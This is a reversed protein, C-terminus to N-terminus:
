RNIGRSVREVEFALLHFAGAECAVADAHTESNLTVANPAGSLPTYLNKGDADDATLFSGVGKLVKQVLAVM